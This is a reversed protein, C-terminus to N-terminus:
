FLRWRQMPTPTPNVCLLNDFKTVMTIKSPLTPHRSERAKSTVVKNFNNSIILVTVLRCFKVM